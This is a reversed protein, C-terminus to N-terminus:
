NPQPSKKIIRLVFYLAFFVAFTLASVWAAKPTNIAISTGIFLYAAIFILPLLPYLKMRYSNKADGGVGRKRLIFITGASTAMGISDLFITHNLIEDFSKGYFLTVLSLAAFATLSVVIVNRKTSVRKFVAPLVGEESMAYMVRPNSMLLVNVYALVSLFLLVSLITFGKEGFLKGALIAAISQAGKLTGFGIVKYYTYNITIYLLMIIAIGFFIGKPLIKSPNQVEGGFNITQQYGGYTFSVAVLCAGFAKLMSMFDPAAVPAPTYTTAYDGTFLASILFVVVGIKIVTLVNQTRASMKLGLLNVGYFTIVAITSIILKITNINSSGKFLVNALYESGILAVGALSAANSVLIICNIAFAISPHYCYSFIKYYGGTVPLRSGIEAYTLAGCLAILGGVIWALFFMRASGAQQAVNVPTRFIGMGIVLSVVIMTLDFLNLRTTSKM